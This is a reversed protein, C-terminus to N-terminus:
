EYMRDIQEKYNKLLARRKIKLTSTLEGKEMSFPEPLLVFKKVREYSALGQQLTDLREYIMDAIKENRCLDENTMYPIYNDDAYKRLMEFAPVILASVFKRDDAIISIQEIYKDVLLKSEIMQPAIYKGNSTKFLEKLREKLYLEGDKMYGSDGTRFFGDETFTEANLAERKYYGKTITPGKLLVEDNEGFKVQLGPVLRGVSGITIPDRRRMCSVTAFSETLGYGVMMFIGLSHIFEAVQDSVFSGATPFYNANELGIQKKVLSFLTKEYFKYKLHLLVPPRKGKLVYDVNHEKGVKLADRMLKQQMPSSNEIKNIVGIYVKEWFRPVAAMCTPHQERMSQQILKPNTNVIVECGETLSLYMWGREFIHTIPLFSMIRDKKEDFELVADNAKMAAAFQGHTLIVGKSDGTTGSTYLINSLDDYSALRILEDLEEQKPSNKGLKLFDDLYMALQPNIKVRRDYVIIKQLTNCLPMVALTKDYQEQEGVFVYRIQADEIMFRIQEESSTAYFPVTVARIGWAALDTFIYEVSNQSFIGVNEQVEIGINLMSNSLTKVTEAVEKWTLQEWVSSGWKQYTFCVKKGYKEAQEYVLSSLHCVTQM